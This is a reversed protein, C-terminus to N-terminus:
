SRPRLISGIQEDVASRTLMLLIEETSSIILLGVALYLLPVNYLGTLFAHILFIFEALGTAKASYLHLNALQGFKVLGITLSALYFAAGALLILPHERFLEPWFLWLWVVGSLNLLNDAWSDFKSGFASTQDLWRAVPGDLADTFLCIILGIGMWFPQDLFALVWMIPILLFRIATLQNPLLQLHQLM